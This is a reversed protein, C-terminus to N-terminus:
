TAPADASHEPVPSPAPAHAEARKAAARERRGKGLWLQLRNMYLYVVPTTYLTLIQSVLLGGVIAFGLPRRLESGTGTGLMLPLGGLLAAMTTMMIPRFRTLCAQYISQEPAMGEEREKALAFDIMMIANKKVIGILLLIGILAIVSLDFGSVYLILLAGLGASPLTSLITLPHIYSEYLVGLIIYVAIVAALILYPQTRLSDQFAQATGQFTGILTLPKNIKLEAQKIADVAQGLATGPSLNFSLTVAPFQGQHSISLSASKSTDVKVFASLPIEDGTRPSKVYLKDLAGTDVQLKPDIELIVHYQSLQTFYQAVQRQGFADYLTDDIVQPQIGFRAATDRDIKLSVTPANTQQDTAVDQLEPLGRLTALMKPAWANLEALNADQLTYQYQTRSPRGGVNIDQSAQLFLAIGEVKALQPRLRAIVEGASADRQDRPKLTIWVRGTNVTQSGGTAGVSGAVSQVAPDRGVVALLAMQKQSMASFSIDQAAESFGQIFGTDQQPFFGKPIVAYLYGTAAMTCFLTMLTAFQHRLVFKLGHDYAALLGDFFREFAMYVRGHKVDHDNKLFLSCMMPTLTLSVVVSVLITITVTVAFERLLRGVIGGMLLVPIFVAVLSLSISIITFGIEASGKLAAEFPAMGEEIHRYINELMVIADDVVFGVAITLGMLSLNDISYGLAYMVAFTGILAMPVTVSPIITAWVNRLFAFIVAVVLGITLLMTFQVDDVSARITQTRDSIVLVDIGPPLAAELRPIMAHVRDVTQIVNAGPQKFVILQIGRKGNQWSALRVNEPGDVARGIDRIRVPAGNKYALVVDNWPSSALLQDDAYITFSQATGDFSGKPSDVTAAALIARVDELSMGLSAIKAPDVQVRVAPKQEGTIAVQAIGPIQSIQQALITDAYDDLKTLPYLDSQVALILIPADAPNVKRYTPPTPLNKPLQGSAATIAAQVDQAAADIARNLDFQITISAVGLASTSTMQTVGAIQAFQRELPTSVSSAMTEPSAGPLSASVQITPFDVQPLPAVPLLPYAVAGILVLALMLLSTAIPRRVFPASISM